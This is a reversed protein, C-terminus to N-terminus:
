LIIDFVSIIMYVWVILKVNPTLYRLPVQKQYTHYEDGFLPILINKEEQIGNLVQFTVLLIALLFGFISGMMLCIAIINVIFMGYMPHRTKGYCKETILQTPERNERNQVAHNVKSILGIQISAYLILSCGFLLHVIDMINIELDLFFPSISLSLNYFAKNFIPIFSEVVYISIIFLTILLLKSVFIKNLNLIKM